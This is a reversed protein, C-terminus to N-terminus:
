TPAFTAKALTEKFVQEFQDTITFWYNNDFFIFKEKLYVTAPADRAAKFVLQYEPRATPSLRPSSSIQPLALITTYLRENIAISSIHAVSIPQGKASLRQITLQTVPVSITPMASPQDSQYTCGSLGVLLLLFLVLAYKTKMM